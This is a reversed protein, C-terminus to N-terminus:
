THRNAQLYALLKMERRGKTVTDLILGCAFMIMAYIAIGSALIATPFRPVLGTKLFDVVIPYALVVSVAAFLCGLVGFFQLPKENKLLILVMWLIRIGDRYPNLKSTSGAPREKYAAPAEAVPLGLTLAHVTMVSEIEFGGSFAPLSKVFARSFVRYGSLVDTFTSGFLWAMSRSFIRNALAHGPRYARASQHVRRGVLMAQKGNQALAVMAPAASADYTGDGDVLVYYDAEIESFMRRVVWGKGQTNERRLIAGAKTAENVTGDTSNNDYVYIAAEPLAARFDRIVSGITKEENYCPILVAIDGPMGGINIESLQHAGVDASRGFIGQGILLAHLRCLAIESPQNFQGFRFQAPPHKFDATSEAVKGALQAAAIQHHTDVGVFIADREPLLAKRVTRVIHPQDEVRLGFFKATDSPVVEIGYRAEVYQFV